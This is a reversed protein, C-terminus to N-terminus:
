SAHPAPASGAGAPPATGGPAPTPASAAPAPAASTAVTGKVKQKAVKGMTNRAKRTAEAKLAAAVKTEPTPTKRTPAKFGFDAVIPNASGFANFVYQQLGRIIPTLKTNLARQATVAAHWTADAAAVAEAQTTRSQLLTVLDAPTYTSGALPLTPVTQLHKQIGAIIQADRAQTTLKATKSM